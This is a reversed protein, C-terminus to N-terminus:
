NAAHIEEWEELLAPRHQAALVCLDKTTKRPIRTNGSNWKVEIMAEAPLLFNVKIEWEGSRKCHFHPPDHDSSWFWLKLGDLTFAKVTVM